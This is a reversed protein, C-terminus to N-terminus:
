DGVYRAAELRDLLIARRGPDTETELLRAWHEAALRHNEYYDAIEDTTRVKPPPSFPASEIMRNAVTRGHGCTALVTASKGAIRDVLQRVRRVDKETANSGAIAGEVADDAPLGDSMRHIAECAIAIRENLTLGAM